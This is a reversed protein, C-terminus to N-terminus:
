LSESDDKAELKEIYAIQLAGNVEVQYIWASLIQHDDTISKVYSIMPGIKFIALNAMASWENLGECPIKANGVHMMYKNM